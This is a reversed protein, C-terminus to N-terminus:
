IKVRIRFDPNIESRRRFSRGDHLDRCHAHIQCLIHELYADDVRLDGQLPQNEERQRMAEMLKHKMLWAAKCTIGLQRMMALAAINTKSQTMRYIALYWTTLPLKSDETMTGARLSAQHRCAKCQWYRLERRRFEYALKHICYPCEVGHPWRAAVLTEECQTGSGYDKMFQQISLGKQFQIPNIGM